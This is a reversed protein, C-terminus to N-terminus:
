WTQKASCSKNIIFDEVEEGKINLDSYGWSPSHSNFDGVIIWNETNPQINNLHIFKNPPRIQKTSLTTQINVYTIFQSKRTM